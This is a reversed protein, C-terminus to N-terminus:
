VAFLDNLAETMTPHTFVQDRLITYDAGMDMALKIVNITEFSEECLLMAGLIRGTNDDIVAKLLGQPAKLVQAKPIAAAPLKAIKVTYGAAKAERENLGVRAYPTALFVSIPVNQRDAATYPRGGSLQSWVIRSDDLSIYTHQAGGTVDGMAWVNDATTRLYADVKVGGRSTREIGAAETNLEMTNPVRGTAILVADAELRHERGQWEFAVAPGSEIKRIQAGLCFEVGREELIERIQAAMDEDERPLFTEGDQIVTVKSGFGSYMSAFELGIYGGGIVVLRQPLDDREMLGASTYVGATEQVGEIPPIRPVSGTNIFIQGGTLSLTGDATQVEVLLPGAFRATGNYITVNPLGALKDYNKKRLMATLRRKEEVAQRYRFAQEEFPADPDIRSASRILSKSPICGVNICTGGYMGPDKEILAVTRGAQALKGALTKGGKGFGIIIADYLLSKM